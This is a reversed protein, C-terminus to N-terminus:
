RTVTTLAIGGLAERHFTVISHRIVASHLRPSSRWGGVRCCSLPSVVRITVRIDATYIHRSRTNLLRYSNMGGIRVVYERGRMQVVMVEELEVVAIGTLCELCTWKACSFIKWEAGGVGSKVNAEEIADEVEEDEEPTRVGRDAM